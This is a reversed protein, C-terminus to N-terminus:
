LIRAVMGPSLANGGGSGAQGSTLFYPGRRRGAGVGSGLDPRSHANQPLRSRGDRADDDEVGIGAGLLAM